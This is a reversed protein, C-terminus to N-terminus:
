TVDKWDGYTDERELREVVTYPSGGREDRVRAELEDWTYYGGFVGQYRRLPSPGYEYTIRRFTLTQPM